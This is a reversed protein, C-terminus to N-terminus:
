RRLERLAALLRRVRRRRLLPWDRPATPPATPAPTSLTAATEDAPGQAQQRLREAALALDVIVGEPDDSSASAPRLREGAARLADLQAQRAARAEAEAVVARDRAGRMTELETRLATVVEACRAREGAVLRESGALKREVEERAALHGDVDERAVRAADALEGALAALAVERDDRQTSALALQARLESVQALARVEGALRDTVQQRAARVHDQAERVAAQSGALQGSLRERVLLSATLRDRLAQAELRAEALQDELELM